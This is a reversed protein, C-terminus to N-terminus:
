DALKGGSLIRGAAKKMANMAIMYLSPGVSIRAVGINGLDQTSLSDPQDGLKVAVRGGLERVLVEVESTRLGRGMGGWYFVTTAGTDLYMRGREVAERLAGQDDNAFYPELRFVDCRANVVFDPCGAEKAAAFARKLRSVQTQADYLSGDVGKGFGASPISDEINAGVAGLAIVRQVVEEIREGYGDQIDVTLPLGAAKVVPAIQAIAALNQELTLDEDKVGLIAAIAWSATAIAKVPKTDATNLSLIANLSAVDWVNSFIIPSSPSHLQKLKFAIENAM